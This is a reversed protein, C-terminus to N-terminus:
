GWGPLSELRVRREEALFKSRRQVSVWQGLRYGDTTVHKEPVRCNGHDHAYSALHAFGKEWKDARVDWSWGPLAELVRIKSQPLRGNKYRTRLGTVWGGLKFGDATIHLAPVLADGVERIYKEIAIVGEEWDSERRDWTWGPLSELQRVRLEDLVGKKYDRLRNSVWLGLRYGDDTEYDAPV